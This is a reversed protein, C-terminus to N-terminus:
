GHVRYCFAQRVWGVWIVQQFREYAATFDAHVAKIAASITKGKTGGVEVRELRNFQLAASALSLMEACRAMHRDLRTFVAANQFRWPKSPCETTSASRYNFCSSKFGGLVKLVTRLKDCAESPDSRLLEPGPAFRHAQMLSPCFRDTSFAATAAAMHQLRLCCHAAAPSWIVLAPACSAAMGCRVQNILDNCIEQLLTTLRTASCYHGSHKWILLVTHMIPKFLDALAVFDDMTSLKELHKRLPTLFRVNDVAEALAAEVEQTALHAFCM